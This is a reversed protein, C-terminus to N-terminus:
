QIIKLLCERLADIYMANGVASLHVGDSTYFGPTDVGIDMSLCEALGTSKTLSRGFRNLRVLKSKIQKASLGRPNRWRIRDLIDVWVLTAGPLASRIYRIEKSVMNFLQTLPFVTLDNGGVHLVLIKPPEGLVVHTEVIGRIGRFGIGGVGRWAISWPLRLGEYGREQAYGGARRPISDGM